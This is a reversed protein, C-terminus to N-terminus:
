QLVLRKKQQDDLSIIDDTIISFDVDKIESFKQHSALICQFGKERKSFIANSFPVRVTPGHIGLLLYDTKVMAASYQDYFVSGTEEFSSAELYLATDNSTSVTYGILPQVSRNLMAKEFIFIEADGFHIKDVGRRYESVVVSQGLSAILADHIEQEDDTIPLPLLLNRIMATDSLRTLTSNHKKHYHTLIVAELETINQDSLTQWGQYASTYAGDSTDILVGKQESVVTVIDNKKYVQYTVAVQDRTISLHVRLCLAFVICFLVFMPYILMLQKRNCCVLITLFLFVLFVPIAFRYNLGILATDSRSLVAALWLVFDTIATIICVFLDTFFSIIPFQPLLSLLLLCPIIYLLVSIPVNLLINSPVSLLSIEEFVLMSIPLTFITASFTMSVISILANISKRFPIRLPLLRDFFLITKQGLLFIGLTASVSLLLGIDMVAVPSSFCIIAMSLFLVTGTDRRSGWYYLICYIVWMIGARMISASFGTMGMFIFVFCLIFLMQHRKNIQLFSCLFQLGIVLISIHIGSVALFHSAGIRRFDRKVAASLASKDGLILGSAFSATDTELFRYLQIKCKQALGACMTFFTDTHDLIDFSHDTDLVAHAFIEDSFDALLDLPSQLLYDSSFFLYCEIRDGPDAYFVTGGNSEVQVVGDADTGDLSEVKLVFRSYNDTAYDLRLVTGTVPVSEAEDFSQFYRVDSVIGCVQFFAIWVVIVSVLCFSCRVKLKQYFLMFFYFATLTIALLIKLFTLSILFFCGLLLVYLICLFMLPRLPRTRM